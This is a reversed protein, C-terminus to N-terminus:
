NVHSLGDVKRMSEPRRLSMKCQTSPIGGEHITYFIETYAEVTCLFSPLRPRLFNTLIYESNLLSHKLAMM